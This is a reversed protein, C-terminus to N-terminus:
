VYVLTLIDGGAQAQASASTGSQIKVNTAGLFKTPDVAVYRSAPVAAITYEAGADTWLVVYTTGGNYSVQFSISQTTWGSPTVVGALTRHGQDASAGSLSASDAITVTTTTITNVVRVLGM